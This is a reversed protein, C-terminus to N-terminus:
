GVVSALEFEDSLSVARGFVLVDVAHAVFEGQLHRLLNGERSTAEEYLTVQFTGVLLESALRSVGVARFRDRNAVLLAHDTVVLHLPVSATSTGPWRSCSNLQDTQRVVVEERGEETDDLGVSDTQRHVLRLDQLLQLVVQSVGLLLALHRTAGSQGGLSLLCLLQLLM